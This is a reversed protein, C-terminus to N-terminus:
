HLFHSSSSLEKKEEKKHPPTSLHPSSPSSLSFWSGKVSTSSARAAKLEFVQHELEFVSWRFCLKQALPQTSLHLLLRTFVAVQWLESSCFWSPSSKGQCKCRWRGRRQGQTDSGEWGSVTGRRGLVFSKKEIPLPELIVQAMEKGVM